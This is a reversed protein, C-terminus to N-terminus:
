EDNLLSCSTDEIMIMIDYDYTIYSQSLTITHYHYTIIYYIYATLTVTLSYTYYTYATLRYTQLDTLTFALTIVVTALRISCHTFPNSRNINDRVFLITSASLVLVWVFETLNVKM